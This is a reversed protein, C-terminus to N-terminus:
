GNRLMERVALLNMASLLASLLEEGHRWLLIKDDRKREKGPCFLVGDWPSLPIKEVVEPMFSSAVKWNSILPAAHRANKRNYDGALDRAVEGRLIDPFSVFRFEFDGDLRRNLVEIKALGDKVM